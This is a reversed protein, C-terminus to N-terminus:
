LGAFTYGEEKLKKLITPLARELRPFAKESDHFVIISGSRVHRLVNQICQDADITLDFDGSLVDWMVVRVQPLSEKLARLQAKTIRGYPPRFLGSDICTAAEQIDAIYQDVPTHWGNIHHQTHNGTKHGKQKILQYTEPYRQVNDGICFFAAPAQYQALQDLVFPTITPHPGDDFTLYVKKGAAPMRWLAEHYWWRFISPSRVPYYM